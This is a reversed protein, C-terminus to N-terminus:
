TNLMYLLYLIIRVRLERTLAEPDSSKSILRKYRLLNVQLNWFFFFMIFKKQEYANICVIIDAFILM